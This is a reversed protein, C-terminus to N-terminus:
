PSPCNGSSMGPLITVPVAWMLLGGSITERVGDGDLDLDPRMLDIVAACLPSTLVKCIDDTEQCDQELPTNCALGAIDIADDNPFTTCTCYERAHANWIGLWEAQRMLIGARAPGGAGDSLTFGPRTPDYAITGDMAVVDFEANRKGIGSLFGIVGDASVITGHDVVVEYHARPTVTNDIFSAGKAVFVGDGAAASTYSTGNREDGQLGLVDFRGSPSLEGPVRAPGRLQYISASSLTEIQKAFFANIDGLLPKIQRMSAGFANDIAGDGDLDFCCDDIPRATEPDLEESQGPVALRSGYSWDGATPYDCITGITLCDGLSCFRDAGCAAEDTPYDCMPANALESCLAEGPAFAFRRDRSCTALDPLTCPNPDCPDPPTTEVDSFALDDAVASDSPDSTEPGRTDAALTDTADTQSGDRTPPNDSDCAGLVLL